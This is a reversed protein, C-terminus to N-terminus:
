KWSLKKRNIDVLQGLIEYLLEAKIKEIEIELGALFLLFVIGLEALFDV